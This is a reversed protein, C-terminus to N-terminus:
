KGGATRISSHIDVSLQLYSSAPAKGYILVWNIGCVIYNEAMFLWVAHMMMMFVHSSILNM